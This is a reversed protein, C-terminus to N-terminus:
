IKNIGCFSYFTTDKLNKRLLNYISNQKEFTDINKFYYKECKIGVENMLKHLVFSSNIFYKHPHLKNYMEYMKLYIYEFFAEYIHLNVCPVNKLLCYILNSDNLHQTLGCKKIM